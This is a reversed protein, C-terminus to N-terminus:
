AARLSREMVSEACPMRLIRGERRPLRAVPWARPRVSAADAVVTLAMPAFFAFSVLLAFANM